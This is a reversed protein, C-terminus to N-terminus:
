RATTRKSNKADEVPQKTCLAAELVANHTDTESANGKELHWFFDPSVIERM